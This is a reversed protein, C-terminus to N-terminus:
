LQWWRMVALIVYFDTVEGSGKYRDVAQKLVKYKHQIGANDLGSGAGVCQALPIGTLYHMWISSTSTNAIGMEGFSLINTGERYIQEWHNRCRHRHGPRIRGATMAAEYLYNRTGKRIKRDILGPLDKYDYNVGCDVIKLLFGHQRCFM